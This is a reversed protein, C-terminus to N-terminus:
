MGKGSIGSIGMSAGDQWSSIYVLVIVLTKLPPAPDPVSVLYISRWEVVGVGRVPDSLLFATGFHLTYSVSVILLCYM